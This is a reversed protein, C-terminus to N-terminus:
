RHYLALGEKTLAGSISDIKGNLFKLPNQLIEEVSPDIGKGKNIKELLKFALAGSAFFKKGCAGAFERHEGSKLKELSEVWSKASEEIFKTQKEKNSEAGYLKGAEAVLVELESESKVIQQFIHDCVRIDEPYKEKVYNLVKKAWDLPEEVRYNFIEELETLSISKDGLFVDHLLSKKGSVSEPVSPPSSILTEQAVKALKELEPSVSTCASIRSVAFLDEPEEAKPPSTFITSIRALM